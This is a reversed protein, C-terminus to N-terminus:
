PPDTPATGLISGDIDQLSQDTEVRDAALCALFCIEEGRDAQRFQRREHQRAMGIDHRDVTLIPRGIWEREHLFVITARPALSMFDKM